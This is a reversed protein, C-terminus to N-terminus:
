RHLIGRNTPETPKLHTDDSAFTLHDVVDVVGPVRRTLAVAIPVLSKRELEGTLTAVGDTIDVAAEAQKGSLMLVEVFVTRVIEERLSEDDRVFLAVLDSRSVIGMLKGYRDVVPLRKMHEHTMVRAAEVISEDAGITRAPASMIQEATRAGYRARSRRLAWRGPPVQKPLLDAESVVGVVTREDDVVPVASVHRGALIVAVDKVPTTRRVSRVDPTMVDRIRLRRM